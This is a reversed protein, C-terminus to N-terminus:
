IEWGWNMIGWGIIGLIVIIIFPIGCGCGILGCTSDSDFLKSWFTKKRYKQPQNPVYTSSPPPTPPTQIVTQQPTPRPNPQQPQSQTSALALPDKRDIIRQRFNQVFTLDDATSLPDPSTLVDHTLQNRIHRCRKLKHYDDSWSPINQAIQFSTNEMDTIYLSVGHIEQYIQDCLQELQKFAELFYSDYIHM